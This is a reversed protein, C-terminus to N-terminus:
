AAEEPRRRSLRSSILLAAAIGCFPIAAAISVTAWFPLPVSFQAFGCLVQTSPPLTDPDRSDVLHMRLDQFGVKYPAPGITWDTATASTVCGM